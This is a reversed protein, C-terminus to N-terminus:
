VRNLIAKSIREDTELAALQAAYERKKEAWAQHALEETDFYGLGGTEHPSFPNSCRARFRHCRPPRYVGLKWVGRKAASNTMFSNLRHDIFICCEAKYIRNGQVLFDKDLQKGEWDQTEM